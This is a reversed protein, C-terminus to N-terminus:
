PLMMARYFKRNSAGSKDIWLYPSETLLISTENSWNQFDSSSQIQYTRGVSGTITVGPFVSASLNAPPAVAQQSGFSIQRIRQNFEDAVFLVGNIMCMGGGGYFMAHPGDGNAYGSGYYEFNGAVTTCDRLISIRRIDQSESVFVNGSNDALLGNVLSFSANTGHGDQSLGGPYMGAITTVNKSQDIERISGSSWVYINDSRDCTLISPSYFSSFIGNGDAWGYNGSGAFVEFAGTEQIFRYIKNASSFYVRNKSDVCVGAAGPFPAAVFGISGDTTIRWIKSSSSVWLVNSLDIAIANPVSYRFQDNTGIFTSVNANTDIKRVLGDNCDLVFINGATDHAMSTPFYFMTQQGNGDVEGDFGSGAFTEVVVTNTDYAQALSEAISALWLSVIAFITFLKRM